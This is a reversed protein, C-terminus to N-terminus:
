RKITCNNLFQQVVTLQYRVAGSDYKIFDPGIGRRRWKKMSEVSVKM